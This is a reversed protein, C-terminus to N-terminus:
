DLNCQWKSYGHRRGAAGFLADCSRGSGPRRTDNRRAQQGEGRLGVITLYSLSLKNDNFHTVQDYSVLAMLDISYLRQVGELGTFGRANRLYYDPIVVIESVFKRDRFRTRIRELLEEKQAATLASEGGASQPLFALGVRLPVRLQPIEDQPPPAADHSYLFDVLSSSNRTAGACNPACWLHSIATCGSILALLCVLVVQRVKM